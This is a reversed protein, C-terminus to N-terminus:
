KCVGCGTYEGETSERNYERERNGRDGYQRCIQILMSVRQMIEGGCVREGGVYMRVHKSEVREECAYWCM